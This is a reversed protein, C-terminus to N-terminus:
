KLLFLTCKNGEVTVPYNDVVAGTESKVLLSYNSSSYKGLDFNLTVVGTDGCNPPNLFFNAVAVGAKEKYDIFYYLSDIGLSLYEQAKTQDFWISLSGKYTCSGDDKQAIAEYSTANVDTCGMKKCSTLLMSAGVILFIGRNM